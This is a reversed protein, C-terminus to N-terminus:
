LHKLINRYIATDSDLFTNFIVRLRSEPHRVKWRMVAGAAIEAAESQPFSFVGTSICCFAVSKMCLEEAAELCSTYCSRLLARDEETVERRVMPGVTHLVYKAPLNYARTVKCDGCEEEHGQAAILKACDDRLQMGAASHIVNDICNHGPLFCGLLGSNAANVIGDVALRTIDGQWLGIGNEGFSLDTEEVIGREISETWFLRDQMALVDSPVPHAPRENMAARILARKKEATASFAAIMGRERLLWKLLADTLEEREEGEVTQPRPYPSLNVTKQSLEFSTM